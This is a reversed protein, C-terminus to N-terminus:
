YTLIIDLVVPFCLLYHIFKEIIKFRNLTLRKMFTIPKAKLQKNNICGLWFLHGKSILRLLRTKVASEYKCDFYTMQIQKFDKM